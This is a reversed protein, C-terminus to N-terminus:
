KIKELHKAKIADFEEQTIGGSKRLADYREISAAVDTFAQLTNPKLNEKNAKVYGIMIFPAATIFGALVFYGGLSILFLNFFLIAVLFVTAYLSCLIFTVLIFARKKWYAKQDLLSIKIGLASSITATLSLCFGIVIRPDYVWISRQLYSLFFLTTIGFLIATMLEGAFMYGRKNIKDDVPAVIQPTAAGESVSHPARRGIHDNGLIIFVASVALSLMFLLDFGFVFMMNGFLIGIFLYLAFVVDLIIVPIIWGRNKAYRKPEQLSVGIGIASLITGGCLVAIVLIRILRTALHSGVLITVTNIALLLGFTCASAILGVVLFRRKRNLVEPAEVKVLSPETAESLGHSLYGYATLGASLFLAVMFVFDFFPATMFLRVAYDILFLLAGICDLLIIAIMWGHHKEYRDRSKLTIHRGVASLITGMLFFTICILRYGFSYTPVGYFFCATALSLAFSVIGLILGITLFARKYKM